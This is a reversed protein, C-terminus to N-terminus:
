QASLGSSIFEFSNGLKSQVNQKEGAVFANEEQSLDIGWTVEAGLAPIIGAKAGSIVTVGSLLLAGAGVGALMIRTKKNM